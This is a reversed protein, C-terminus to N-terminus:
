KKEELVNSLEIIDMFNIISPAVGNNTMKDRWAAFTARWKASETIIIDLNEQTNADNSNLYSILNSFKSSVKVTQGDPGTISIYTNPTNMLAIDTPTEGNSNQLKEKNANTPNQALDATETSKVYDTAVTEASQITADKLIVKKNEAVENKLEKNPATVAIIPNVKQTDTIVPTKLTNTPTITAVQNNTTTKNNTNLWISTALVAAISAAAALKYYISANKKVNSTLPVIKAQTDDLKLVINQWASIPAEQTYHYMKQTFDPQSQKKQNDIVAFINVVVNAPPLVEFASLKNKITAYVEQKDLENAINVWAEKPPTQQHSLIKNLWNQSM